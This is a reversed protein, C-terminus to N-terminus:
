AAKPTGAFWWKETWDQYVYGVDVSPSYGEYCAVYRWRGDLDRFHTGNPYTKAFPPDMYNVAVLLRPHAPSLRRIAYEQELDDNNILRGVKFFYVDVENPGDWKPLDDILRHDGYRITRGGFFGEAVSSGKTVRHERTMKARRVIMDAQADVHRRLTRVVDALVPDRQSTLLRRALERSLSSSRLATALLDQFERIQDDTIVGSSSSPTKM